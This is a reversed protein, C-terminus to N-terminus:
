NPSASIWFRSWTLGEGTRWESQRVGGTTAPSRPSLDLPSPSCPAVLVINAPKIDRHVMGLRHAADLAAAIQKAITCVREVPIPAEQQIVEKLSRGEIYEMVIFPRGDEAEDIDDVRVANPHQLRRTIVAERMFRKVFTPDAALEPSMVKLARLEDFRVHLAKYVTAMGGEGLKGLIRYKEGVVPRVGGHAKQLLVDPTPGRNPFFPDVLGGLSHPCM